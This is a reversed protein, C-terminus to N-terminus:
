YLFDFVGYLFGLRLWLGCVVLGLLGFYGLLVRNGASPPRGFAFPFLEHGWFNRHLVLSRSSCVPLTEARDSTRKVGFRQTCVSPCVSLCVSEGFGYVERVLHHDIAHFILLSISTFLASSM